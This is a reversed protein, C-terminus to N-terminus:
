SENNIHQVKSFSFLRRGIFQVIFAITLHSIYAAWLNGTAYTVLCVIIGYPIAAIAEKGHHLHAVVYLFVNIAIAIGLGYELHPFLLVRFYFEYVMLYLVWVLLHEWKKDESISDLKENSKKIILLGGGVSLIFLIVLYYISNESWSYSRAMHDIPIFGNLVYALFGIIMVLIGTVRARHGIIAQGYVGKFVWSYAVEALVTIAIPIFYLLLLLHNDVQM